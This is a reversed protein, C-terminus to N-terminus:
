VMDEVDRVVKKGPAATEFVDFQQPVIFGPEIRQASVNDGVRCGGSVKQPAKIFRLDNFQHFGFVLDPLFYPFLLWLHKLFSATMLASPVMVSVYPLQLSPM